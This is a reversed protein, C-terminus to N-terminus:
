GIGKRPSTTGSPLTNPQRIAMIDKEYKEADMEGDESILPINLGERFALEFSDLLDGLHSEVRLGPTEMAPLRKKGVFCETRASMLLFSFCFEKRLKYFFIAVSCAESAWLDSIAPFGLLQLSFSHHM